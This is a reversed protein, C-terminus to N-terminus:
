IFDLGYPRMPVPVAGRWREPVPPLSENDPVGWFFQTMEPAALEVADKGDSLVLMEGDVCGSMRELGHQKWYPQLADVVGPFDTWLLTGVFAATTRISSGDSRTSGATLMDLLPVFLTDVASVQVEIDGQFDEAALGGLSKVIAEDGGLESVTICDDHFTACAYGLPGSANEAIFAKLGCCNAPIVPGLTDASRVYRPNQQAYWEIIMGADDPTGPRWRADKSLLASWLTHPMRYRAILGAHRAGQRTYLGRGGSILFVGVGRQRADAMASEMLTTALGMGRYEEDTAVAGVLGVDLVADGIILQKYAVGYHSVIRDGHAYIWCDPVSAASLYVPFEDGM